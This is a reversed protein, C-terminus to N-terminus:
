NDCLIKRVVQLQQFILSKNLRLVEKMEYDSINEEEIDKSRFKFLIRNHFCLVPISLLQKLETSILRM